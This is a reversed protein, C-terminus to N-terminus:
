DETTLLNVTKVNNLGDERGVTFVSKGPAKNVANTILSDKLYEWVVIGNDSNCIINSLTINTLGDKPNIGYSNDGMVITGYNRCGDHVQEIVGDIIVNWIKANAPLLRIVLM